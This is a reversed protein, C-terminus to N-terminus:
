ILQPDNNQHTLITIIKDVVLESNSYSISSPLQTSIIYSLPDIYNGKQSSIIFKIQDEVSIKNCISNKINYKNILIYRLQKTPHLNLLEYETYIKDLDPKPLRAYKKYIDIEEDFNTNCQSTDYDHRTNIDKLNIDIKSNFEFVFFKHLGKRFEFTNIFNLSDMNYNLQVNDEIILINKTIEKTNINELVYIEPDSLENELRAYLIRHEERTIISVVSKTSLLYKSIILM